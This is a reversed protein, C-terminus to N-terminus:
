TQLLPFNCESLKSAAAGFSSWRGPSIMSFVRSFLRLISPATSSRVPIPSESTSLPPITLVVSGINDNQPDHAGAYTWLVVAAHHLGLFALFNFKARTEEPRQVERSILSWITVAHRVAIDSRRGNAWNSVDDIINREVSRKDVIRYSIHHLDEIPAQLRIYSLHYLLLSSLFSNRDRELNLVNSISGFSQKWKRLANTLRDLDSKLDHMGQPRSILHDDMIGFSLNATSEKRQPTTQTVGFLGPVNSDGDLGNDCLSSLTEDSGTLREFLYYDHSFRWVAQQLGFLLLEHGIPDLVSFREDRELAIRITDSFSQVKTATQDREVLALYIDLPLVPGRWTQDSCPLELDIEEPSILPQTNLLVSTYTEARLIGFALRRRGESHLWRSLREEPQRSLAAKKEDHRTRPASFLNMRCAQAVLVGGLHQAYSFAKSQGFYLAAVQTLLRAQGLWILDDEVDGLELAMTLTQRLRNHLMTGFHAAQAGGYMAGISTLTLYLLPHILDCDLGQNSLLPWLPGFNQLYLDVFNQLIHSSEFHQNSLSFVDQAKGSMSLWYEVCDPKSSASTQQAADTVLIEILRSQRTPTSAVTEEIQRPQARGKLCTLALKLVTQVTSVMVTLVKTSNFRQMTGASWNAHLFINEHIWPWATTDSACDMYMNDAVNISSQLDSPLSADSQFTSDCPEPQYIQGNRFTPESLSTPSPFAIDPPLDGNNPNNAQGPQASDISWNSNLLGQSIRSACRSFECDQRSDICRQCPHRGDCKTRLERCRVCATHCRRRGNSIQGGDAARSSSVAKQQQGAQHMKSHRALLDRRYFAINCSHCVYHKTKKHNQMHRNLSNQKSYKKGCEQCSYM